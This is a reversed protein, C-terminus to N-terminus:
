GASLPYTLTITRPTTSLTNASFYIMIERERELTELPKPQCYNHITFVMPIDESQYTTLKIVTRVLTTSQAKYVVRVWSFVVNADNSTTFLFGVLLM